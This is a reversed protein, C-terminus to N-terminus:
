EVEVAQLVLSEWFSVTEVTEVSRDLVGLLNQLITLVQVGVVPEMSDVTMVVEVVALLPLHISYAPVARAAVVEVALAARV